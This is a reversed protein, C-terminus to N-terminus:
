LARAQYAKVANEITKIADLPDLDRAVKQIRSDAVIFVSAYLRTAGLATYAKMWEKSEDSFFNINSIKSKKLFRRNEASSDASIVITEKLLKKPLETSIAKIIERLENSKVRPDCVVVLFDAGKGDRMWPLLRRAGMEGQPKDGTLPVLCNFEETPAPDGEFLLDQGSRRLNMDQEEQEKTLYNGASLDSLGVPQRSLLEEFRKRDNQKKIEEDSLKVETGSEELAEQAAQQKAIEMKKALEAQKNRIKKAMGIETSLRHANLIKCGPLSSFAAVDSLLTVLTVLSLNTKM